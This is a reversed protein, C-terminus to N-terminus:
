SSRPRGRLLWAGRGFGGATVLALVLIAAESGAASVGSALGTGAAAAPGESPEPGPSAIAGVGESTRSTVAVTAGGSAFLAVVALLTAAVSPLKKVIM